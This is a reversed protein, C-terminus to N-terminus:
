KGFLHIELKILAPAKEDGGRFDDWIEEESKSFNEQKKAASDVGFYAVPQINHTKKPNM